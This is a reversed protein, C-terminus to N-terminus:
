TPIGITTYDHLLGYGNGYHPMQLGANIQIPSTKIEAAMM